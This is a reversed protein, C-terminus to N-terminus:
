VKPLPKRGSRPAPRPEPRRLSAPLPVAARSGGVTEAAPVLPPPRATIQADIRPFSTSPTAVHAEMLRKYLPRAAVATKEREESDDSGSPSFSPNPSSTAAAAADM